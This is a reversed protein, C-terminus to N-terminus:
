AAMWWVSRLSWIRHDLFRPSLILEYACSRVLEEARAATVAEHGLANAVFQRIHDDGRVFDDSGAYVLLMRVTSVCLGATDSLVREIEVPSRKPVDQLVEIGIDGLRRAARLVHEARAHKTGPLPQDTRFVERIMGDLGFEDYRRVLDTLTEQEENSPLIWRNERTRAIRFRHCYRDAAPVYGDEHECRFRFVADILAVSLHAPFFEDSLEPNELPISHRVMSMVQEVELENGSM